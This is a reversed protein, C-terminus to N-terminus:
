AMLSAFYLGTGAALFKFGEEIINKFHCILLAMALIAYCLRQDLYGHILLSTM